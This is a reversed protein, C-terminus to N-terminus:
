PARRSFREVAKVLNEFVEPLTKVIEGLADYMGRVLKLDLENALIYPNKRLAEALKHRARRMKKLAKRRAAVQAEGPGPPENWEVYAATFKELCGMISRRLPLRDPIASAEIALRELGKRATDCQEQTIGEEERALLDTMFAVLADKRLEQIAWAPTGRSADPLGGHKERLKRNREALRKRRSQKRAAGHRAV